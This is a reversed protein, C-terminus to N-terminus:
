KLTLSNVSNRADTILMNVQAYKTQKYANPKLLGEFLQCIWSHFYEIMTQLFQEKKPFVDTTQYVEIVLLHAKQWVKYNRYDVM